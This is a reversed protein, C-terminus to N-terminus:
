VGQEELVAQCWVKPAAAGSKMYELETKPADFPSLRDRVKSLQEFAYAVKLLTQESHAKGIFTICFRHITLDAAICLSNSM